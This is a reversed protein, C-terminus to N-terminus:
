TPNTESPRSYGSAVCPPHDAADSTYFRCTLPLLVFPPAALSEEAFRRAQRAGEGELAKAFLPILAANFAGEAFIRRFLNPLRFAVFFADAVPGTGLASATLVDRTFGLVRSVITGGGVTAFHRLLAM